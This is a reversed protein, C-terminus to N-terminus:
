PVVETARLATWEAEIKAVQEEQRKYDENRESMRYVEAWQRQETLRVTLIEHARILDVLQGLTMM